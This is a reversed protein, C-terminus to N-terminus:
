EDNGEEKELSKSLATFKVKLMNYADPHNTTLHDITKKNAQWQSRLGDPSEIMKTAVEIMQDVWYHADSDKWTLYSEADDAIPDAVAKAPEKKAVPPNSKTVTKAKTPKSVVQEAIVDDIMDEPQSQGRYIHFGLGFLGITKVLCRMKNDSIDRSSPNPITKNAYNMVPLWMRRTLGHIEVQCVVSVSGDPYVENDLYAFSSEPYHEMLLAWAENWALYTLGNKSKANESCDVQSLNKWIAGYTINPYQEKKPM